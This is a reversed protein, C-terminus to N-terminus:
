GTLRSNGDLIEGLISIAASKTENTVRAYVLTTRADTHGLV